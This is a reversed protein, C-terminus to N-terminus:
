VFVSLVLEELELFLWYAKRNPYAKARKKKGELFSKRALIVAGRPNERNRDSVQWKYAFRMIGIVLDLVAVVLSFQAVFNESASSRESGELHKLISLALLTHSIPKPM